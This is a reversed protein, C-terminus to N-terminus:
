TRVKDHSGATGRPQYGGQRPSMSVRGEARGSPSVTSAEEEGDGEGEAGEEGEEKGAPVAFADEGGEGDEVSTSSVSASGSTSGPFAALPAAFPGTPGPHVGTAPTM